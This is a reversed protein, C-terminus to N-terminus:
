AGLNIVLDAAPEAGLTSSFTVRSALGRDIANRQAREILPDDHDIGHGTADPCAALLRLLLEAWGCGVDLVSSPETTALEAILRGATEETMPNNFNLWEYYGVPAEDTV